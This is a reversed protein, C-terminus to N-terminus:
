NTKTPNILSIKLFGYRQLAYHILVCKAFADHEKPLETKCNSSLLSLRRCYCQM